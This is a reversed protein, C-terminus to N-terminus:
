KVKVKVVSSVKGYTKKDAAFADVKIFYTKGKKLKKIVARTKRTKISKVGKKFKKDLTYRVRYGKANKTKKWKVTIKKKKSVAKISKVKGPVSVSTDAVKDKTQVPAMVPTQAAAPAQTPNAAPAQTPNSVPAQTPTATPVPGQTFKWYDFRFLNDKSDDGTFVFYLDHTGKVVNKDLEIKNEVFTKDDAGAVVDCEGICDGDTSDLYLEIKGASKGNGADSACSATFSVAGWQTFDVNRVCVYDENQIDTLCVDSPTDAVPEKEVGYKGLRDKDSAKLSNSYEITEAEVREFPNLTDVADVGNNTMPATEITGDDNYTIEEIAVSRHYGHGDNLRGTHYFIYSHGKYDVVGSHNTFSGTGDNDEMKEDLIVGKYEWPGLPSDSMSYDIREPIGNAAYVMYYHGNRGYFWPGEEYLTPRRVKKNDVRIGVGFQSQADKLEDSADNAYEGSSIYKNDDTVSSLEPFDRTELNWTKIGNVFGDENLDKDYSIMDENLKVCFLDPNGWYLYAQGDSDIWVTPDIYNPAPGILPEGIPDVFPGTPSDAVAVGIATQGNKANIPVYMYFKGNREICQCAWSSNEKAWEFEHYSLVTGHDTWNVMDTTSYCKWDNMTFFGNLTEDEDHSTYVYLRGDSCTMPAPDATYVDQVIPNVAKAEKVGGTTFALTSAMTGCLVFCICKKFINKTM